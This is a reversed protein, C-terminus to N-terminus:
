DLEKRDYLQRLEEQYRRQIAHRACKLTPTLLRNELSFAKPILKIARVQEFDKLGNNKGLKKFERLVIGEADPYNCLERMSVMKGDLSFLQTANADNKQKNSYRSFMRVMEPKRNLQSLAKCLSEGNPVVLAIPYSKLPSGDVFVQNVLPSKSYVQEIKEPGVYKGQSLKFIHALRDLIKLQNGDTWEGIDGTHLWGDKDILNATLEPQKYYGPTTVAGRVCVEGKKNTVANLNMDPVDALKIECGPLPPGVHNGELDGFLSCTIAACTETAGYGELVQILCLPLKLDNFILLLSMSAFIISYRIRRLLKTTRIPHDLLAHLLDYKKDGNEDSRDPCGFVARTFQLLEDSIPAGGVNVVRIRGGFTKRITRLKHRIALKVLKTKLESEAVKKYVVQQIRALVRPVAFLVTPRLTFMEEQFKTIDGCYFGVKGRAGLALMLNFQEYIHALPLYSLYIDTEIFISRNGHLLAGSVASVLMKNTIIVGKPTGTTGSTYCLCVMDNEKPPMIDAFAHIQVRGQAIDRLRESSSEDSHVLIIHKLRDAKLELLKQAMSPSICVCVTLEAIDCLSSIECNYWLINKVYYHPVSYELGRRILRIEVCNKGCIGIFKELGNKNLGCINILGSGLASVQDYVANLLLDHVTKINVNITVPLDGNKAIVSRRVGERHLICMALGFFKM